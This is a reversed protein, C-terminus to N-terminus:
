PKKMPGITPGDWIIKCQPMQSALRKAVTETVADSGKVSLDTLTRCERLSDLGAPTVGSKFTSLNRLKPCKAIEALMADDVPTGGFSLIRLTPIKAIEKCWDRDIRKCELFTLSELNLRGLAAAPKATPLADFGVRTLSLNTLGPLETAIRELHADDAKRAEFSISTLAPFKKLEALIGPTLEVSPFTLSRITDKAPFTALRAFDAEVWKLKNFWDSIGELTPLDAVAIFYPERFDPSLTSAGGISVVRFPEKPLPADPPLQHDIKKSETVISLNCHQHLVEAAKRERDAAKAKPVRRMQWLDDKGHSGSGSSRSHFYVTGCDDSFFPQMLAPATFTGLSRVEWDGNPKSTALLWETGSWGDDRKQKRYFTLGRGDATPRPGDELGGTSVPPPVKEAKGFAADKTPRRSMWIDYNDGVRNTAFYLTLGDPSLAPSEEKLGSNVNPGLNEPKGWPADRNSRSTMWIDYDGHGGRRSSSYLLTLGDGTLFPFRSITENVSADLRVAEGWPDSTTKRQSEYLAWNNHRFSSFILRLGDASVTPDNEDDATNVKPGLNEPKTWEWDPSTLIDTATPKSLDTFRINRIAVEARQMPATKPLHLRWGILGDPPINFDGDIIKEGKLWVTVHKGVCRVTVATFQDAAVAPATAPAAQIMAGVTPGTGNSFLEGWLSGWGGPSGGNRCLPGFLQFIEANLVGSRFQLGSYVDGPVKIEYSLEFDTYKQKTYLFTNPNGPSSGVIAGDTVKWIGERFTWGTLDKGNFFTPDTPKSLDRFEINRVRLEACKPSVSWMFNGTEPLSPLDGEFTLIDNVFVTAKQGVIRLRYSNYGNSKFSDYVGRPVATPETWKKDRVVFTRGLQRGLELVGKDKDNLSRRFNFSTAMNNATPDPVKFQCQADFTIEFDRVTRDSVLSLYETESPNKGILEGGEVKWQKLEDVWGDLNKGNFFAPDTPIPNPQPSRRGVTRVVRFGIFPVAYGGIRHQRTATRVHKPEYSWWSEGRVVRQVGPAAPVVPDTGGPLPGAYGDECWEKVNGHVDFLGWPNPKKRGVPHAYAEGAVTTNAKTWAYDPLAKPESGFSYATATGARAAWEWEAETPLRYEEDGGLKGAARETETLKKCFEAAMTWNVYTAPCDAQALVEPQDKWPETGMVAAWQGQTVETVGFRFSRTLIVPVQQEDAEHGPEDPPSGMTFKGPPIVVFKMGVSNATEVPEGLYKAWAAQTAAAATSDFPAVAPPPADGPLPVGPPEPTRGPKPPEVLVVETPKKAMQSAVVGVIGAVALLVVGVMAWVPFGGRPKTPAEPEAPLGAALEPDPESNAETADLDAFPDPGVQALVIPPPSDLPIVRVANVMGAEIARLEDAAAEATPPRYAPDKALLRMVFDSLHPPVAPNVAIPPSPNDLALSTLIALTTAGRFPLEGTTMQYLMVGLSFLDTRGDVTLGRGQEPSMYAPTGVVAGERTVPGDTGETADNDTARALGFDLVKVRLKKGELWINAPKIDRHVLGKEHAAALGEAVERGIRIVENLPPRPNAKLAAQLTMGKLLPMVLYPLGDHDAVTFIAAVHDHEVKAQARAERVFRAKAQPNAAFQPLMVKLAVERKLRPDEARYVVGMGGRGLESLLAYEGLHVPANGGQGPSLGLTDSGTATV